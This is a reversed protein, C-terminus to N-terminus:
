EQLEDTLSKAMKGKKFDIVGVFVNALQWAIMLSDDSHCTPRQETIKSMACGKLSFAKKTKNLM